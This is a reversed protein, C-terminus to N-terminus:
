ISVGKSKHLMRGLVMLVTPTSMELAVNSAAGRLAFPLYLCLYNVLSESPKAAKSAPNAAKSSLLGKTHLSAM